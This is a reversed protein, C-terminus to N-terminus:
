WDMGYGVMGYWVICYWLWVVGCGVRGLRGVVGYWVVGCGVRGEGPGLRRRCAMGHRREDGKM